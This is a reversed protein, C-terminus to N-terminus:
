KLELSVSVIFGYIRRRTQGIEGTMQLVEQSLVTNTDRTLFTGSHLRFSGVPDKAFSM